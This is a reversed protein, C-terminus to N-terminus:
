TTEGPSSHQRCRKLLVLLARCSDKRANSIRCRRGTRPDIVDVEGTKRVHRVTCGLRRAMRLAQRRNPVARNM